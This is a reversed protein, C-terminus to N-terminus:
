SYHLHEPYSVFPLYLRVFWVLLHKVKKPNFSIIMEVMVSVSLVNGLWSGLPAKLVRTLTRNMMPIRANPMRAMEVAFDDPMQSELTLM